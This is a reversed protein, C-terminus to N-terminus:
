KFKKSDLAKILSSTVQLQVDYVLWLDIEYEIKTIGHMKEINKSSIKNTANLWSKLRIEILSKNSPYKHTIKIYSGEFGEHMM